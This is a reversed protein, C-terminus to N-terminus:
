QEPELVAVGVPSACVQVAIVYLKYPGILLFFTLPRIGIHLILLM